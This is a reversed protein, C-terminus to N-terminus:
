RPLEGSHPNYARSVVGGAGVYAQCQLGFATARLAFTLMKVCKGPCELVLTRSELGLDKVGLQSGKGSSRRCQTKIKQPPCFGSTLEVRVEGRSNAQM